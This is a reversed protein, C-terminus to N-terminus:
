NHALLWEALAQFARARHSIKSKEEISLEAFTLSYGKPIFIPDYGFGGSGRPELAIEGDVVGVFVHPVGNNCLGVAAKFFASRDGVGELLKLVRRLGLTRYVYESYPGPFGELAKIYLGDDEVVTMDMRRACLDEAATRAIEEVDDAQVELKKVMIQEVEISYRKLVSSAELVKHRNSTAFYIRM